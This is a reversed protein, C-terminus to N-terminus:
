SHPKVYFYNAIKKVYSLPNVILDGQKVRDSALKRYKEYRHQLRFDDWGKWREENFLRDGEARLGEDKEDTDSIVLESADM